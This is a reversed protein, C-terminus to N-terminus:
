IFSILSSATFSTITKYNALRLSLLVTCIVGNTVILLVRVHFERQMPRRRKKSCKWEVSKAIPQPM